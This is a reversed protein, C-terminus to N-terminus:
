CLHIGEEGDEGDVGDEGVRLGLRYGLRGGGDISVAAPVAVTDNSLPWEEEVRRKM